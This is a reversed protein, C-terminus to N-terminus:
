SYSCEDDANIFHEIFVLPVELSTCSNVYKLFLSVYATYLKITNGTYRHMILRKEFIKIIIESEM